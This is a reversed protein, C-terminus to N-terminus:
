HSDLFQRVDVFHGAVAAAAAMTPSVLHTRAGKGQRGIFNRNSTSACREGPGVNDGNMGCCMSCGSQRWEFGADMFIRDLGESEAARKVVQSGPVVMAKVGNAVKRGRVIRAAERLDSIRSNTCSGIFVRHVPVDTFPTGPALGMYELANQMAVRRRGDSVAGPDPVRETISTAHEPSTGWTVMPAIKEAELRVERDFAADADSALALWEEAATKWQEGKPAFRRNEVYALTKEDPAILGVKAGGEISMNCITLRGEIPMNRIASGAYEIAYGSAGAAGIKAIIALIVDKATVGPGLKGEVSIRMLPPKCQWLAQTALVHCVESAGIGFGLAGLAGHTATHSDGCVVTMGPLTLGQEPGVIHVIGQDPDQLGFTSLKHRSTNEEFAEIMARREPDALSAIDRSTTPVYHDPTCFTRAPEAIQLGREHIIEFARRSGEHVYHRDIYLLTQGDERDLIRHRDWIKDLITRPARTSSGM